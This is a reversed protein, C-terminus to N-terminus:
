KSSLAAGVIGALGLLAILGILEQNQQQDVESELDLLSRVITKAAGVIDTINFRAYVLDKVIEPLDSGNEIAPIIRKGLQKARELEYRVAQSSTCNNTWLLLVASSAKLATEIKEEWLKRGLALNEQSEAVYPVQGCRKIYDAISECFSGDKESHVIFIRFNRPTPYNILVQNLSPGTPTGWEIAPGDMWQSGTWYRYNVGVRFEHHGMNAEFPIEALVNHIPNFLNFQNPQYVLNCETNYAYEQPLWDFWASIRRLHIPASGANTFTCGLRIREGIRYTQNLRDFTWKIQWNPQTQLYVSVVVM